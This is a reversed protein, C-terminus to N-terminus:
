NVSTSNTLLVQVWDEKMKISIENILMLVPVKETM